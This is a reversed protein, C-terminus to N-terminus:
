SSAPPPSSIGLKAQLAPPLKLPAAAGTSTGPLMIARYASAIQRAEDPSMAANKRGLTASALIALALLVVLVIIALANTSM